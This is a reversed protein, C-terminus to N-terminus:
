VLLDVYTGRPASRDLTEVDVNPPLMRMGRRGVGAAVGGGGSGGGGRPASVTPRSTVGDVGPADVTSRSGIPIIDAM